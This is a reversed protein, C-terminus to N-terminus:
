KAGPTALTVSCCATDGANKATEQYKLELDIVRKLQEWSNSGAIKRGNIYLTPTSNLGLKQATEIDQNVGAETEKTDYCRSLQLADIGNKPAWSMMEPKLNEATLTGQKDFVWDHFKWFNEEGQFAICRGAIAASRAWPHIQELPYDHLFLRVQKPYTQTLNERLVKAQDKCYPCQFDTYLSIVVPAGPTGLSPHGVNQILSIERAFPHVTTDLIDGRVITKGDASVYYRQEMSREGLSARVTVEDFGKLATSPQSDKVVVTIEPTWTNLHRLYDILKATDLKPTTEVPSSVKATGPKIKVAKKADQGFLCLATLAVPVVARLFTQM